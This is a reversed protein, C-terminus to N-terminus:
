KPAKNLYRLIHIVVNWHDICPNHMFQSVVNITFSLELIITLYM